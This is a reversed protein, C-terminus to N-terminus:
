KRHLRWDDSTGYVAAYFRDGEPTGASNAYEHAPAEIQAWFQSLEFNAAETAKDREYARVTEAIERSGQEDTIGAKYLNRAKIFFMQAASTLGEPMEKGYYAAEKLFSVPPAVFIAYPYEIYNFEDM